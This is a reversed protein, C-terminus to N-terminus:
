GLMNSRPKGRVYWHCSGETDAVGTISQKDPVGTGAKPTAEHANLPSNAPGDGAAPPVKGTGTDRPTSPGRQAAASTALLLFLLTALVTPIFRAM